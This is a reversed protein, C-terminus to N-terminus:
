ISNMNSLVASYWFQWNPPCYKKAATVSVTYGYGSALGAVHARIASDWDSFGSSGWGWANYPKFCYLGKSSEVNAIAPSYRPDVGSDYAAEAFTKGHGAMPSGALYANIRGTWEQVFKDRATWTVASTNSTDSSGSSSSGNSSNNSSSSSSSTSNNNGATPTTVTATNGSETKFTTQGDKEAKQAEEVAKQAEARQAALEKAAQEQAEKRAAIADDMASKANDKATEAEAKQAKLTDQTEQLKEQASVLKDMADNNKGAVIDLYNMASVLENFNDASLLMDIVGGSSQSLKYSSNISKAASERLKPLEENLQDIKAQNDDMSKQVKNLHDVADNYSKSTQEVKAQLDSDESARATTPVTGMGVGFLLGAVLATAALRM